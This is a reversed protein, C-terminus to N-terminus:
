QFVIHLINVCEECVKLTYWSCFFFLFCSITINDEKGSVTMINTKITNWIIHTDRSLEMLLQQLGASYSCFVTFDDAIM